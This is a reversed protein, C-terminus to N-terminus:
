RPLEAAQPASRAQATWLPLHKQALLMSFSSDPRLMEWVTSAQKAEFGRFQVQGSRRFVLARDADGDHPVSVVLELQEALFAFLEHFERDLEAVPVVKRFWARQPATASLWAALAEGSFAEGTNYIDSLTTLSEPTQADGMGMARALDRLLMDAVRRAADRAREPERDRVAREVMASLEAPLLLNYACDVYVRFPYELPRGSSARAQAVLADLKAKLMGNRATGRASENIKEAIAVKVAGFVPDNMAAVEAAAGYSIFLGAELGYGKKERAEEDLTRQQAEADRRTEDARAELERLRAREPAALLEAVLADRAPGFLNEIRGLVEREQRRLALVAELARRSAPTDSAGKQGAPVQKELDAIRGALDALLAREREPEPLALKRALQAKVAETQVAVKELEQRLRSDVELKRAAIAQADSTVRSRLKEAYARCIAQVAKALEVLAPLEGSFVAADGLLNQLWLSQAGDGNQARAAAAELIPQYFEQKLFEAMVIEKARYTRQTFGKLDIFLHGQQRQALQRRLGRADSSLRYLRGASYDAVLQDRGYEARRDKLRARAGDVAAAAVRDLALCVFAQIVEPISQPRETGDRLAAALNNIIAAAPEARRSQPLRLLRSALGKGDSLAKFLTEDSVVLQSLAAQLEPDAIDLSSLLDFTLRRAMRLAAARSARTRLAKDDAVAAGLRAEITRPSPDDEVLRLWISDLPEALSSSLGWPNLENQLARSRVSCFALPTLCARARAAYTAADFGRPAQALTGLAAECAAEALAFLAFGVAKEQREWPYTRSVFPKARAKKQECLEATAALALALMPTAGGGRLDEGLCKLYLASLQSFLPGGHGRLLWAELVGADLSSDLRMARLAAARRWGSDGLPQASFGLPLLPREDAEFTGPPPPPPELQHERRRRMLYDLDDVAREADDNIADDFAYPIALEAESEGLHFPLAQFAVVLHESLAFRPLVLLQKLLELREPVYDFTAAM